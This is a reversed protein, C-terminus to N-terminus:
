RSTAAAPLRLPEKLRVVQKSGEADVIAVSAVGIPGEEVVVERPQRILHRVRDLAVDVLDNNSDYSIGIMPVWEAVIQDGLDLSTVEIEAWKGSLASAMRDFYNKWETKPLTLMHSM